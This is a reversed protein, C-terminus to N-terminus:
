QIFVTITCLRLLRASYRGAERLSLSCSSSVCQPKAVWEPGDLSFVAWGPLFPEESGLLSPGSDDAIQLNRVM